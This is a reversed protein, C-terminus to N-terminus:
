LDYLATIQSTISPGVPVVVVLAPNGHEGDANGFARVLFCAVATM